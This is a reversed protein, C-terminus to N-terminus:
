PTLKAPTEAAVDDAQRLSAIEEDTLRPGSAERPDVVWLPAGFAGKVAKAVCCLVVAHDRKMGIECYDEWEDIEAFVWGDLADDLQWQDERIFAPRHVRVPTDARSQPPNTRAACLKHPRRM